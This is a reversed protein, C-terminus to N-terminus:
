ERDRAVTRTAVPPFIQNMLPDLVVDGKGILVYIPDRCDVQVVHLSPDQEIKYKMMGITLHDWSSLDPTRNLADVKAKPLVNGVFYKKGSEDMFGVMQSGPNHRRVNYLIEIAREKGQTHIPNEFLQHGKVSLMKMAVKKQKM